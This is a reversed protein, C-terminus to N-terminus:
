PHGLCVVLKKKMVLSANLGVVIFGFHPPIRIGFKAELVLSLIGLATQRVFVSTMLGSSQPDGPGPVLRQLCLSTRLM